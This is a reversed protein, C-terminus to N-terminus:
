GLCLSQHSGVFRLTLRGVFRPVRDPGFIDHQRQREAEAEQHKMRAFEPQFYNPCIRFRPEYKARSRATKGKERLDTLKIRQVRDQTAIEAVHEHTTKRKTGRASALVSSVLEAKISAVRTNLSKAKPRMAPSSSLSISGGDSEEANANDRAVRHRSKVPSSSNWDSMPDGEASLDDKVSIPGTHAEGDRDLVSLDVPMNSHAVATRNFNPSTGMLLDM